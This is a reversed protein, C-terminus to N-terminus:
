ESLYNQIIQEFVSYPQAGNVFTGSVQGSEDLRGIVFAPTGYIGAKAADTKDKEVEVALDKNDLCNILKQGDIGLSKALNILKDEAMGQGNGATNQYLLDHYLFYVEDGSQEQVCEGAIAEKLAAPNHFDLPLDRFVLIAKGTHIYNEKIQGLTQEYFRKCYPCEYDSFEVIAVKAGSKDGLVPDDDLSVTKQPSAVSTPSSSSIQENKNPRSFGQLGFFIALSIMAGVLLFTLINKNM